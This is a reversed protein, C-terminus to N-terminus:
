LSKAKQEVSNRYLVRNVMGIPIDYLEPISNPETSALFPNHGGDQPGPLVAHGDIISRMLSSWSFRLQFSVYGDHQKPRRLTADWTHGSLLLCFLHVPRGGYVLRTHPDGMGQVSCMSTLM